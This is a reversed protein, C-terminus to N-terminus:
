ARARSLHQAGPPSRASPYRPLRARPPNASSAPPAPPPALVAGADDAGRGAGRISGQPRGICRAAHAAFGKCLPARARASANPARPAARLAPPAPPAPLPLGGGPALCRHRPRRCPHERAAGEERRLRIRRRHACCARRQPHEGAVTRHVTRRARRRFGPRRWSPPPRRPAPQISTPQGGRTVALGPNGDLISQFSQLRVDRSGHVFLGHM